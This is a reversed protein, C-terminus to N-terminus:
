NERSFGLWDLQYQIIGEKSFGRTSVKANVRLSKFEKWHDFQCLKGHNSIEAWTGFLLLSM